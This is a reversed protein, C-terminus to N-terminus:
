GVAQVEVVDVKCSRPPEIELGPSISWDATESPPISDSEYQQTALVAQQVGFWTVTLSVVVGVGSNNTITGGAMETTCTKPRSAVQDELSIDVDTDRNAGPLVVTCAASTLGIMLAWAVLRFRIHTDVTKLERYSHTRPKLSARGPLGEAM